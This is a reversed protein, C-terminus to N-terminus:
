PLPIQYFSARYAAAVFFAADLPVRDGSRHHFARPRVVVDRSERRFNDVAANGTEAHAQTETQADVVVRRAIRRRHGAQRDVCRRCAAEFARSCRRSCWLVM